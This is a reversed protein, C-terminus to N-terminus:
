ENADFNVLVHCEFSEHLWWFILRDTLKNKREARQQLLRWLDAKWACEVSIPQFALILGNSWGTECYSNSTSMPASPLLFVSSPVCLGAVEGEIRWISVCHHKHEIVDRIKIPKLRFSNRPRSAMAMVALKTLLFVSASARTSSIDPTAKMKLWFNKLSSLATVPISRSFM